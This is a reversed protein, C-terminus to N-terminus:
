DLTFCKDKMKVVFLENSSPDQIVCSKDRFLISYQKELLQSVSLLNRDIDLVLLVDFILKISSLTKISVVQKGKIEIHDGNDIKVKLTCTRDLEKFMHEDFTMHHTCDNDILWAKTHGNSCFM